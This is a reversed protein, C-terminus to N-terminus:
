PTTNRQHGSARKALRICRFLGATAIRLHAEVRRARREIANADIRTAAGERRILPHRYCVILIREFGPQAPRREEFIENKAFLDSVEIMLADRFADHM